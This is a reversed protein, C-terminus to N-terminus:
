LKRLKWGVAFTVVSGVFFAGILHHHACLIVGVVFAGAAAFEVIRGVKQLHASSTSAGNATSTSTSTTSM